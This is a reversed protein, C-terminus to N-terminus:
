ATYKGAKTELESYDIVFELAGQAGANGSVITLVLKEMTPYYLEVPADQANGFSVNDVLTVNDLFEIPNAETGISVVLDADWGIALAHFSEIVAGEPIAGIIHQGAPLVQEGPMNRYVTGKSGYRCRQENNELQTFYNM